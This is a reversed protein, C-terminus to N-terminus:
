EFVTADPDIRPEDPDPPVEEIRLLPGKEGIHLPVGPPLWGVHQQDISALAADKGAHAGPIDLGPMRVENLGLNYVRFGPAGDREEWVLALQRRSVHPADSIAISAGLRPDDSRRGVTFTADSLRFAERERGAEDEVVLVWRGPEWGAATEGPIRTADRDTVPLAPASAVTAERDSAAETGAAAAGGLDKGSHTAVLYLPAESDASRELRVRYAREYLSGHRNCSDTLERELDTAIPTLAAAADPRLTV